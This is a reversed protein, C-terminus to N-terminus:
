AEHGLHGPLRRLRRGPLVSRAAEVELGKLVEDSATIGRTMVHLLAASAAEFNKQQRGDPQRGLGQNFVEVQLEYARLIKEYDHYLRVVQEALEVPLHGLDDTTADLAITPLMLDRWVRVNEDLKPLRDELLDRNKRVEARLLVAARQRAQRPKLWLELLLAGGAGGFL